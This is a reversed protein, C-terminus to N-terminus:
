SLGESMRAARASAWATLEDFEVRAARLRGELETCREHHRAALEEFKQADNLAAILEQRHTRRVEVFQRVEGELLAAAQDRNDRDAALRACEAEADRLRASLSEITGAHAHITSAHQEIAGTQQEIIATHQEIAKRQQAITNIQQEIRSTQQGITSAQQEITSTQKEITGAQERMVAEYQATLAPVAHHREREAHLASQLADRDKIAQALM